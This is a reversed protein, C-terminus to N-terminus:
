IVFLIKGFKNELGYWPLEADTIIGYCSLRVNRKIQYFDSKAYTQVDIDTLM